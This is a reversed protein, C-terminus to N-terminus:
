FRVRLGGAGFEVRSGGGSPGHGPQANGTSTFWADSGWIFPPLGIALNVAAFFGVAVAVPAAGLREDSQEPWGQEFAAPLMFITIVASLSGLVTNPLGLAMAVNGPHDVDAIEARAITSTGGDPLEVTLTRPDSSVIRGEVPPGARREIVAYPSCGLAVVVGFVVAARACRRAGAYPDLPM